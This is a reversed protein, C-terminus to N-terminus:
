HFNCNLDTIVNWITAPCSWQLWVVRTHGCRRQGMNNAPHERRSPIYTSTIQWIGRFCIISGTNHDSIARMTMRSQGVFRGKRIKEATGIQGFISINPNRNM